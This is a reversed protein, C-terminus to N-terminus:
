VRTIFQPAGRLTNSVTCIEEAAEVIRHKTEDDLQGDIEIEIIFREVRSPEDAAKEGTVRVRVEGLREAVGLRAAAMRASLAICASLSAYILDLPSFGPESVATVIDLVGGTDSTVVPLRGPAMATQAGVARTRIKLAAM